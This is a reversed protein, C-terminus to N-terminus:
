DIHTPTKTETGPLPGHWNRIRDQWDQWVVQTEAEREREQRLGAYLGADYGARWIRSEHTVAHARNLQFYIARIWAALLNVPVPLIVARQADWRLWAVGWGWPLRECEGIERWRM